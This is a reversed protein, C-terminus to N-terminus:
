PEEGKRDVKRADIIAQIEARDEATLEGESEKLLATVARSKSGQFFTDVLKSLASKFATKKCVVPFYVNKRGDRRSQILSKREMLFLWKRVASFGPPDELQEMVETASGEGLKYIIDLLQRERRSLRTDSAQM